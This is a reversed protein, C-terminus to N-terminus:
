SQQNCGDKLRQKIIQQLTLIEQRVIDAEEFLPQYMISLISIRNRYKSSRFASEYIAYANAEQQKSLNKFGFYRIDAFPTDDSIYGMIHLDTYKVMNTEEEKYDLVIEKFKSVKTKLDTNTILEIKGSNTLADYIGFSANYTWNTLANLNISDMDQASMDSFDGQMIFDITATKIQHLSLIRNLETLNKDLEISLSNLATQAENKLLSQQNDNNIKLAILIGIVVLIIEGFAYLLYKGFRSNAIFKQRIHRFFKIM